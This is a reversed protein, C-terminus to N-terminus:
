DCGTDTIPQPWPLPELYPAALHSFAPAPFSKAGEAVRAGVGRFTGQKLSVGATAARNLNDPLFRGHTSDPETSVHSLLSMLPPKAVEVQLKVEPSAPSSAPSPTSPSPTPSAPSPASAPTPHPSTSPSVHAGGTVLSTQRGLKSNSFLQFVGGPLECVLNLPTHELVGKKLM